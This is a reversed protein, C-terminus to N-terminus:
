VFDYHTVCEILERIGFIHEKDMKGPNCVPMINKATSYKECKM